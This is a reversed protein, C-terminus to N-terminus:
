YGKFIISLVTFSFFQWYLYGCKPNCGCIKISYYTYTVEETGASTGNLSFSEDKSTFWLNQMGIFYLCYIYRIYGLKILLDKTKNEGIYTVM